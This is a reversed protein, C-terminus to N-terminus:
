IICCHGFVFSLFKAGTVEKKKKKNRKKSDREKWSFTLVLDFDFVGFSLLPEGNFHSM